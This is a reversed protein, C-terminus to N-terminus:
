KWFANLIRHMIYKHLLKYRHEGEDGLMTWM